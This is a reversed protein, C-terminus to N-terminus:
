FQIRAGAQVFWIDELGGTVQDAAGGSVTAGASYRRYGLYLHMAAADIAQVAGLGWWTMRSDTVGGLGSPTLDTLSASALTGAIGDSVRGYEGYLSTAGLGTWNRQIGGSAWWLTVGPRNPGGAIGGITEGTSEGRFRYRTYAGSAFLGSAVHMASASALLHRRDTDDLKTAPPGAVVEDPERDGYHRYGIGAAVLYGAMDGAYRLGVDWFNDEGFAAGASFGHWTPTTYMVADRRSAGHESCDSSYPGAVSPGGCLQSWTDSSSLTGAGNRLRMGGGWAGPESNAIVGTNSVDISAISATASNLRGVTLTGLSAHKLYWNATRIGPISDGAGGIGDGLATAGLIGGSGSVGDDDIQNVQNSRAGIRIDFEMMFGATVSPNVRASGLFRFRSTMIANDVSYIDRDFGDNWYLLSRNVLGSLTLAVKRNGKRVATAELEAVRAELDACCNGALDAAEALPTSNMLAGAAAVLALRGLRVFTEAM